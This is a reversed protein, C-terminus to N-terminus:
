QVKAAVVRFSEAALNLIQQQIQAHSEVDLIDDDRDDPSQYAWRRLVPGEDFAQKLGAQRKLLTEPLRQPSLPPEDAEVVGATRREAASARRAV